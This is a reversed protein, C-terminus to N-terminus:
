KPGLPQKRTPLEENLEDSPSCAMETEEGLVPSPMSAPKIETGCYLFPLELRYPPGLLLILCVSALVSHALHSQPLVSEVVLQLM